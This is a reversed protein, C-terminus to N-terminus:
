PWRTLSVMASPQESVLWRGQGLNQKGKLGQRPKEVTSTNPPSSARQSGDVCLLRGWGAGSRSDPGAPAPLPHCLGSGTKRMRAWLGLPVSSPPM